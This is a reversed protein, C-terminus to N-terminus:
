ANLAATMHRKFKSQLKMKKGIAYDIGNLAIKKYDKVVRLLNNKPVKGNMKSVIGKYQAIRSKAVSMDSSSDFGATQEATFKIADQAGDRLNSLDSSKIKETGALEVLKKAVKKVKADFAKQTPYLYKTKTVEKIAAKKAEKPLASKKLRKQFTSRPLRGAKKIISFYRKDAQKCVNKPLELKANAIDYRKVPPKDVYALRKESFILNHTNLM